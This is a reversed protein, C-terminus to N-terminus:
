IIAQTDETGRKLRGTMALVPHRDDLNWYLCYRIPSEENLKIWVKRERLILQCGLRILDFHRCTHCLTQFESKGAAMKDLFRRREEIFDPLLTQLRKDKKEHKHLFLGYIVAGAVAAGGTIKVVWFKFVSVGFMTTLIDMLNLGALAALPIVARLMKDRFLNSLFYNM